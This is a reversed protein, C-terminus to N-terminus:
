SLILCNSPVIISQTLSLKSTMTVEYLGAIRREEESMKESNKSSHTEPAAVAIAGGTSGSGHSANSVSM